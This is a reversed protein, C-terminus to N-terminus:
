LKIWYKMNLMRELNEKSSILPHKSRNTYSFHIKGKDIHTIELECETSKIKFRDGTSFGAKEEEKQKKVGQLVFKPNYVDKIEVSGPLVSQIHWGYGRFHAVMLDQEAKELEDQPVLIQKDKHDIPWSFQKAANDFYSKGPYNSSKM